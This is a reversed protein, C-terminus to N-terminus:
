KAGKSRFVVVITMLILKIDLGFNWDMIYKRDLRVIEEFDTIDSRGMVQWIGTIGPRMALRSKHHLDYMLYEDYTPPRTGVLSMDGKLVNFFQLLEDISTKRIFRGIPTIRPDDKMKFMFGNMENDNLLDKKREEADVYMSRFKYINFIRGNKGVRKQKFVVPGPSTIKIIPVIFISVILTILLGVISGIIDLMRKLFLNRESISNSYITVFNTEGINSYGVNGYSKKISELSYHVTIGTSILKEVLAAVSNSERDINIIVEDVENKLSYNIIEKEGIIINIDESEDCYKLEVDDMIGIGVVIYENDFDSKVDYSHLINESDGVILLKRRKKDSYIYRRLFKKVLMRMAYVCITAMVFWIGVFFRSFSDSIKLIFFFSILIFFTQFTFKTTSVFERFYGRKSIGIYSEIFFAVGFAIVSMGISLMSYSETMSIRGISGNLNVAIYLAIQLAILDGYLYISNKLIGNENREFM